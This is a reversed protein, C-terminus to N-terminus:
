PLKCVMTGLDCKANPPCDSNIGTCDADDNCPQLSCSLSMTRNITTDRTKQQTAQMWTMVAVIVGLVVMLILLYELATQGKRDM